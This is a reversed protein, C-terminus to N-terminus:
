QSEIERFMMSAITMPAIRNDQTLFRAAQKGHEIANVVDSTRGVAEPRRIVRRHFPMCMYLETRSQCPHCVMTEFLIELIQM